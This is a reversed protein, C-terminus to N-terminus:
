VQVLPEGVGLEARLRAVIEGHTAGAVAAEVVQAYINDKGSAASRALTDLCKNVADMSRAAKYRALADIQAQMVEPRPRALAARAASDEDVRYANVGVVTQEGSEVKEQFALASAGIMSQVMGSEVAQYMGGADEIRTMVSRIEEEMDNTLKEV